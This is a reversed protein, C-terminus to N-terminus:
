VVPLRESALSALWFHRQIIDKYGKYGLIDLRAALM